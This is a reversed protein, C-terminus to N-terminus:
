TGLTKALHTPRFPKSKRRHRGAVALTCVVIAVGPYAIGSLRTPAQELLPVSISSHEGAIAALISDRVSNPLPMSDGSAVLGVSRHLGVTADLVVDVISPTLEPLDAPLNQACQIDDILGTSNGFWNAIALDTDYYNGRMADSTDNATTRLQHLAGVDLKWPVESPMHRDGDFEHLFAPLIEVLGGVVERNPDSAHSIAEWPRNTHEYRTSEIEFIQTASDNNLAVDGPASEGQM